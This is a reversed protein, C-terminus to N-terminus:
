KKMKAAADKLAKQEAKQKAQFAIDEASLEKGTSPTSHPETLAHVSAFEQPYHSHM